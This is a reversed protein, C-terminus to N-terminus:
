GNKSEMKNMDTKNKRLIQEVLEPMKKIKKLESERHFTVGDSSYFFLNISYFCDETEVMEGICSKMHKVTFIASPRSKFYLSDGKFFEPKNNIIVQPIFIEKIPRGNDIM